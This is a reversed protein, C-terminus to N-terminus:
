FDCDDLPESFGIYYWLVATGSMDAPWPEFEIGERTNYDLLEPTIFERVFPMIIDHYDTLEVKAALQFQLIFVVEHTDTGDREPGVYCCAQKKRTDDAQNIKYEDMDDLGATTFLAPLGTTEDSITDIITQIEEKISM